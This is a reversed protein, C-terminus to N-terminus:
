PICLVEGFGGGDAVDIVESWGSFDPSYNDPWWPEHLSILMPCGIKGFQPLLMIEAGEIDIKVFEADKCAAMPLVGPVRLSHSGRLGTVSEGFDDALIATQTSGVLEPHCAVPLDNLLMNTRLVGHAVPDPEYADISAAGAQHMWLVTPGVWAGIDVCRKGKAYEKIIEHTGPEWRGDAWMPWFDWEPQKPPFDLVKFPGAEIVKM